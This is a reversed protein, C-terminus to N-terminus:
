YQDRQVGQLTRQPMVGREFPFNGGFTTMLLDPQHVVVLVDRGERGAPKCLLCRDGLHERLPFFLLNKAIRIGRHM